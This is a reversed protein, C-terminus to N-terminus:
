KHALTSLKCRCKIILLLYVQPAINERWDKWERSVLPNQQSYNFEMRKSLSELAERSGQVFPAPAFDGTPMKTLLNIEAEGPQPHVPNQCQQSILGCM